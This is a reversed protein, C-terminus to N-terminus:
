IKSARGGQSGLMRKKGKMQDSDEMGMREVTETESDDEDDDESVDSDMDDDDDDELVFKYKDYKEMTKKWMTPGLEMEEDTLLCDDMLKRIAEIKMGHGIFVIEQRRDKYEWESGDEKKIDKLVHAESATGEWIEPITCLWPSQAEIRM